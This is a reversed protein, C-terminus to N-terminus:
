RKMQQENHLEHIFPNVIIQELQKVMAKTLYNRNDGELPYSISMFTAAINKSGMYTLGYSVSTRFYGLQSDPPVHGVFAIRLTNEKDRMIQLDIRKDKFPFSSKVDEPVLEGPIDEVIFVRTNPIREWDRGENQVIEDATIRLAEIEEVTAHENAVIAEDEPDHTVSEKM